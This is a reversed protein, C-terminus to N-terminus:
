RAPWEASAAAVPACERGANSKAPFLQEGHRFRLHPVNAAGSDAHDKLLRHGREIRHHAHSILNGLRHQRMCSVCGPVSAGLFASRQSETARSSLGSLSASSFPEVAPEVACALDGLGFGPAQRDLRQAGDGDGIGVPPRAVIGMLEGSALALAHHNGHGHHVPRRQQDGVLGRCREVDGDLRLHEVQEALQALFKRQRHQEDGVIERDHRLHRVADSHHVGAAQDFHSRRLFNERM